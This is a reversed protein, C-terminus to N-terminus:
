YAYILNHNSNKHNNMFKLENTGNNLLLGLQSSSHSPKLANVILGKNNEKEFQGISHTFHGLKKRANLNNEEHHNLSVLNKNSNSLLKKSKM